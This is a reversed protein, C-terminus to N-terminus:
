GPDRGGEALRRYLGTCGYIGYFTFRDPALGDRVAQYEGYDADGEDRNRSDNFDHFLCFGGPIVLRDLVACVALTDAYTHSHDIFVFGFRAGADALERAAAAADGTRMSVRDLLGLRELNKRAARTYAPELDVTHVRKSPSSNRCARALIATSLGQHSGLELVDGGAFYALEYLKLADERRLWGPVYRPFWRGTRMRILFGDRLPYNAIREHEGDIYPSAFDYTPAYPPMRSGLEELSMWTDPHATVM